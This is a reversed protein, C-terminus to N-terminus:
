ALVFGIRVFCLLLLAPQVARFAGHRRGYVMLALVLVLLLVLIPQLARFGSFSSSLRLGHRGPHFLLQRYPDDRIIPFVLVHDRQDVQLADERLLQRLHGALVDHPQHEIPLVVGDRQHLPGPDHPADAVAGHELLPDRLDGEAGDRRRLLDLAEARPHHILQLVVHLVLNSVEERVRVVVGDAVELLLAEALRDAHRPLLPVAVDFVIVAPRQHLAVDMGGDVVHLDRLHDLRLPLEDHIPDLRTTELVHDVRRKRRSLVAPDQADLIREIDGPDPLGAPGGFRHSAAQFQTPPPVRLSISRPQLCGQLLEESAHFGMVRRLDKRFGDIHLCIWVVQGNTAVRDIESGDRLAQLLFRHVVTASLHEEGIEHAHHLVTLFEVGLAMLVVHLREPHFHVNHVQELLLGSSGLLACM